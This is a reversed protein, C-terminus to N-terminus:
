SFRDQNKLITKIGNFIGQAMITKFGDDRMWGEELRSTINSIEVMLSKDPHIQMLPDTTKFVGGNPFILKQFLARQMLEARQQRNSSIGTFGTRPGIIRGMPDEGTHLSILLDPSISKVQNIKRQLPVQKDQNRLLVVQGQYAELLTKARRALDLTVEKEQLSTPSISGSDNGGHAPDIVILKDQIIKRLPNRDLTLIIQNPCAKNINVKIPTQHELIIKLSIKGEWEQKLHVEKILGDRPALTTPPMNLHIDSFTCLYRLSDLSEIEPTASFPYCDVGILSFFDGDKEEIKTWLNTIWNKRQDCNM